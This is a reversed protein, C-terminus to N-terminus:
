EKDCEEQYLQAYKTLSHQMTKMLAYSIILMAILQTLFGLVLIVAMIIYQLFFQQKFNDGENSAILYCILGIMSFIYLAMLDVM